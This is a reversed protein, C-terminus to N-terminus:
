RPSFLLLSDGTNHIRYVSKVSDKDMYVFIGSVPEASQMRLIASKIDRFSSYNREALAMAPPSIYANTFIMDDPQAYEKIAASLHTAMMDAPVPSNLKKYDDVSVKVMWSFVLVLGTSIIWFHIHKIFNYALMSAFLIVVATIKLSSFDHEVNFNFFLIHHLLVPLATILLIFWQQKTFGSSRTFVCLIVWCLVSVRILPLLPNYNEIFHLKFLEYSERHFMTHNFETRAADTVAGSRLNYKEKMVTYWLEFGSISSYQAIILLLCLGTSIAISCLVYFAIREKKIFWVALMFIFFCFACLLGLWETYVSVFTILGCFVLKRWNVQHLNNWLHFYTLLQAMFLLQMLVDAFYVNSHFWLNGPLFLYIGYGFIAPVNINTFISQSSTQLILLFLLFATVFHIAYGFIQMSRFTYPLGTLKLVYYPAIFGFPPYSTYYVDGGKEYVGGFVGIYKDGKNQFTYVPSFHYNSPGGNKDWIKCTMLVHGTIYEHHRGPPQDFNDKRIFVSAVFLLTLLTLNILVIKQRFLFSM